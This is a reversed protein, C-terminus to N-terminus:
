MPLTIQFKTGQVPRRKATITGGQEEIIKRSLYLGIGAGDKSFAKAEKGPYFRQFIKHLDEPEIGIGEDEIELLLLNPLQKVSVMIKTEEMSYKIANDLINSIAEVTWKPDHCVVEDKEIDVQLEIRKAYAKMFVQNVAETITKKIECREPKLEIMHSELRSLNVLEQLLVELKHIEVEEQKLFEDREEKSLESEQALEHSMRLSSLPTKLQHSIDSILSKTSNEEQELKERLGQLYYDQERLTDEFQACKEQERKESQQQKRLLAIGAGTFAALLAFMMLWYHFLQNQMFQVYYEYNEALEAEKGPYITNLEETQVLFVKAQARGYCFFGVTLFLFLLLSALVVGSIKKRSRRDM